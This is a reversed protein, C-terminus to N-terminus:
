YIDPDAIPKAAAHLFKFDCGEHAQTCEACFLKGYGREFKAPPPTWHARRRALEDDSVHLHLKRAPVDLEILDGDKVLAIPGGQATEPSVHLICTGYSTGSMRADSLRVLDRIGQQLLKKPLPLMGWEPM